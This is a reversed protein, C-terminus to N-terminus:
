QTPAESVLELLRESAKRVSEDLVRQLIPGSWLNGGYGLEMTLESTGDRTAVVTARLTWPSHNRGDLERREFVVARPHHHESRVMRLVKSRSFPGVQARLEVNWAPVDPVGRATGDERSERDLSERDLSDQDRSGQDLTDPPLEEVHHVLEMWQPYLGLDDVWAFVREPATPVTLNRRIEM